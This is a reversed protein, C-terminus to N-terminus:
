GNKLTIFLDNMEESLDAVKIKEYNKKKNEPHICVLYMNTIKKDYKDELIKKYTNLQLSYHWYNSDPLHSIEERHSTKNWGNIKVIEKSRKWDYILLKNEDDPDYFVMDISGSLKVDEHFVTWETRYPKFHSHDKVFKEFYEWEICPMINLSSPNNAYYKWLDDLTPKKNDPLYQGLNMFCEIQYHMLTGAKAAQDRNKEWVLKIEDPTMGFYKHGPQWKKSKMMNSIIADSNFEGFHTHNWTTVSTYKQGPDSLITYVHTPEDFLIYEDRKHAFAKKLYDIDLNMEPLQTSSENLSSNISPITDPHILSLKDPM